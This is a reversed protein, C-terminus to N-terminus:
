YSYRYSRRSVNKVNARKAKRNNRIPILKTKILMNVIDLEKFKDPSDYFMLSRIFHSKVIGIVQNTNRKMEYKYRDTPIEHKLNTEIILLSILNSLWITSYIDQRILTNKYGSFEELKLKNKLVNYNTEINWRLHYLEKLANIDFEEETLNTLLIEETNAGNDDVLVKAIRIKYTTSLIKNYFEIDDKYDNAVSKLYKIDFVKSSWHKNSSFIVNLTM